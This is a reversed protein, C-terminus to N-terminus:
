ALFIWCIFYDVLIDSVDEGGEVVVVFLDLGFYLFIRTQVEKLKMVEQSVCVVIIFLYINGELPIGLSCSEIWIGKLKFIRKSDYIFIDFIVSKCLFMIISADFEIRFKIICVVVESNEVVIM